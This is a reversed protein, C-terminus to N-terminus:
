QPEIRVQHSGDTVPTTLHLVQRAEDWTQSWSDAEDSVTLVWGEPYHRDAPVYLDTTGSAGRRDDFSLEYVRTEPDYSWATPEGAVRQAYPRVLVLM